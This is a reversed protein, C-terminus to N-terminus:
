LFIMEVFRKMGYHLSITTFSHRLFRSRKKTWLKLIFRYKSNKTFTVIKLVKGFRTFIQFLFLSFFCILLTRFRVTTWGDVHSRMYSWITAVVIVPCCLQGDEHMERTVIEVVVSPAFCALRPFSPVLGCSREFNTSPVPSQWPQTGLCINAKAIILEITQGVWDAIHIIIVAIRPRHNDVRPTCAVYAVFKRARKM